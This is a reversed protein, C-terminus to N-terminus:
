MVTCVNCATDEADEELKIPASLSNCSINGQEVSAVATPESEIRALPLVPEKPRNFFDQLKNVVRDKTEQDVSKKRDFFERLKVLTDNKLAVGEADLESAADDTQSDPVFIISRPHLAAMPEEEDCMATTEDDEEEYRPTTPKLGSGPRLFVREPAEWDSDCGDSGPSLASTSVKWNTNTPALAAAVRCAPVVINKSAVPSDFAKVKARWEASHANENESGHRVANAVVSVRKKGIIWDPHNKKLLALLQKNSGMHARHSEIASLLAADTPTTQTSFAPM